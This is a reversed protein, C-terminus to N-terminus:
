RPRLYGPVIEDIHRPRIGFCAPFPGSCVSDTQMSDYNDRSFPKWFPMFELATAQLRSLGPGLSVVRRRLGLQDRTYCVLEQLTYDQPGCLDYRQGYTARNTLARCFVEAIDGVYVPAFRASGCALPMIWPSLKLLQAFRNFFSDGPGFIVSPRFSTVQLGAERGARHVLDEGEGKTRLYVSSGHEADAHLASMHLFRRVGAEQCATLLRQVLEVHVERFHTHKARGENLIGVLNIVAASGRLLAPLQAADLVDAPVIQVTPLVRLDRHRQPHRSPILVRWGRGALHSALHHGVFGSGGIITVTGTSM